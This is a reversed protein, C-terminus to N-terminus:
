NTAIGACSHRWQEWAAELQQVITGVASYLSNVMHNAIRYSYSVLTIANRELMMEMWPKFPSRSFEHVASPEEREHDCLRRGDL